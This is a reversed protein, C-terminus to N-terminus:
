LSNVFWARMMEDRETFRQKEESRNHHGVHVRRDMGLGVLIGQVGYSANDVLGQGVPSQLIRHVTHNALDLRGVETDLAHRGVAMDNWQAHGAPLFQGSGHVHGVHGHQLVGRGYIRLHFFFFFIQKIVNRKVGDLTIPVSSM